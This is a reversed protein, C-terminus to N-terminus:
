AAQAEKRRELLESLEAYTRTHRVTSKFGMSDIMEVEIKTDKWARILESDPDQGFSEVLARFRDRETMAAFYRRQGRDAKSGLVDATRRVTAGFERDSRSRRQQALVDTHGAGADRGRHEFRKGWESDIAESTFALRLQADDWAESMEAQRRPDDSPLVDSGCWEDLISPEVIRNEFLEWGDGLNMARESWSEPDSGYGLFITGRNGLRAYVETDFIPARYDTSTNM